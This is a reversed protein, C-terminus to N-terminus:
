LYEGLASYLLFYKKQTFFTLVNKCIIAKGDWSISINRRTNRGAQSHVNCFPHLVPSSVDASIM